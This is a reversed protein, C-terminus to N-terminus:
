ATLDPLPMLALRLHWANVCQAPVAPPPHKFLAHRHGVRGRGGSPTVHCGERTYARIWEDLYMGCSLGGKMELDFVGPTYINKLFPTAFTRM